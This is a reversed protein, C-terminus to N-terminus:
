RKRPKVARVGATRSGEPVEVVASSFDELDWYRINRRVRLPAVFGHTEALKGYTQAAHLVRRYSVGHVNSPELKSYKEYLEVWLEKPWTTPEDLIGAAVLGNSTWAACNGWEKSRGLLRNFFNKVRSLALAFGAEGSRSRERLGTYYRDLALLKEAPLEEVRLSIMGRNYVGGQESGTDFVGTGYLYDEPRLFNVMERGPKGVINMVKQEGGPLTYRVVAHGYPNTGSGSDTPLKWVALPSVFIYELAPPKSRGLAKDLESLVSAKNAIEGGNRAGFDEPAPSPAAASAPRAGFFAGALWVAPGTRARAGALALVPSGGGEREGSFFRRLIGQAAGPDSPRARAEGLEGDLRGLSAFPAAEPAAAPAAMPRSETRLASVPAAAPVAAVAAVAAPRAATLSPAPLAPLPTDLPPLSPLLPGM